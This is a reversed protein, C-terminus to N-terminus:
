DNLHLDHQLEAITMVGDTMSMIDQGLQKSLYSAAFLGHIVHTNDKEHINIVLAYHQKNSHLTEIIHGVRAHRLSEIDLGILENYPTMVMNVTLDMRSLRREQIAKLPKEGLLDESGLLGLLQQEKNVVLLVHYPTNTVERLAVDIHEDPSITQAKVANFDLMVQLALDDWHAVEPPESPHAYSIGTKIPITPIPIYIKPM